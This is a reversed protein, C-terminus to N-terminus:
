RATLHPITDVEHQLAAPTHAKFVRVCPESSGRDPSSVETQIIINLYLASRPVTHVPHIKKLLLLASLRSAVLNFLLLMSSLGRHVKVSRETETAAREWNGM